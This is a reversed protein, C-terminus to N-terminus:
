GGHRGLVYFLAVVAALYALVFGFFIGLQPSIYVQAYWTLTGFVTLIIIGAVYKLNARIRFGLANLLLVVIGYGVMIYLFTAVQDVGDVQVLGVQQVWWTFFGLGAIAAVGAIYGLNPRIRFKLASLVIIAAGCELIFFSFVSLQPVVYPRIWWTLIGFAILIMIGVIYKLNASRKTSM